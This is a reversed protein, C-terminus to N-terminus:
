SKDGQAAFYGGGWSRQTALSATRWLTVTLVHGSKNYKAQKTNVICRCVQNPRWSILPVSSIFIWKLKSGESHGHGQFCWNKCLISWSIIYLRIVNPQLFSWFNLLYPLFPWIQNYSGESHGQGQLYCVLRRTHCSPRHHRMVMGLKTVFPEATLSADDLHANMPTGFREQSRSSSWLLAIWDKWLVIWSIIIHMIRRNGQCCFGIIKFYVRARSSVVMGLKTTFSEATRFIDDPCVDHVDQLKATVKVKFVAIWNRWLVSQSIIIYWLVLNAQLLILPVSYITSITMDYSGMSQGQGQLCESLLGIKKCSVHRQSCVNNQTSNNLVMSLNENMWENVDAWSSADVYLTQYCFTQHNLLYGRSLCENM